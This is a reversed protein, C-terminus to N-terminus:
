RIPGTYLNGTVGTRRDLYIDGPTGREDQLGALHAIEINSSYSNINTSSREARQKEEKIRSESM